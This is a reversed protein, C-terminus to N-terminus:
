PTMRPSQMPGPHVSDHLPTSLRLNMWPRVVFSM